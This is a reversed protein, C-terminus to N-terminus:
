KNAIEVDTNNAIWDLFDTVRTWGSPFRAQCHTSVFASVGIVVGDRVLPSGSDGACVSTLHEGSTCLTKPPIVPAFADRCERDSIVRVVIYNLVDSVKVGYGDTLGWGSATAVANLYDNEVDARTPLGVIQIADTLSVPSNLRIVAIDNAVSDSGYEEHLRINAGPVTQKVQTPEAASTNHVGLTM